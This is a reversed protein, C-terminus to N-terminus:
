LDIDSIDIEGSMLKPLLSDRLDALRINENQNSIIFETIPKVVSNFQDLANEDPLLLELGKVRDRPLETQGTSGTHLSEIEREHLIGWIGIYYILKENKPRVITVHSDVTMNVPDFWIQAARGLTGQGTSNILLDGKKLWKENIKKPLHKRAPSLDLMHDRICKQNIVIQDSEDSYKPAIGRTVLSTIDELTVMQWDEHESIDPDIFWAKFISSAQQLLNNNIKTNIAIKKDIDGIIGAVKKQVDLEPVPIKMKLFHSKPLQPQASGTQISKIQTLFSDSRLVNYVYERCISNNCRVILMGSNIRVNEFPVDNDYYAVNGVTGRTTIVIDGRCLKGNRLLADKDATIFQKETFLFGNSTVNKASLFLCDGKELLENQHPYNKGRDGDIIQIPLREIEIKEVM